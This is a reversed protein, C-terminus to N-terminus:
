VDQRVINTVLVDSVIPGIIKRATELLADHLVQMASGETYNGAFGGSNAYDFLTQLFADRIRPEVAYVQSTTGREVELSLSLVVLAHVKGGTVLPVVFQNALKAYDHQSSAKTGAPHASTAPAASTAHKASAPAAKPPKKAPAPRLFFGTGAGAALGLMALLIPLLKRM